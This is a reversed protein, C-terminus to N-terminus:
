AIPRRRLHLHVLLCSLFSAVGASYGSKIGRATIPKQQGASCPRPTVQGAPPHPGRQKSPIRYQLEGVAVVRARDYGGLALFDELVTPLAWDAKGPVSEVCLVESVAM